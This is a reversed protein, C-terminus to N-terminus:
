ARHLHKSLQLRYNDIELLAGWTLFPIALRPFAISPSTLHKILSHAKAELLDPLPEIASRTPEEPGFESAVLLVNLDETLRDPDLSYTRDRNCYDGKEKLRHHTTYGWIRVFGEDPDIQAALYYDAVWNPIDVWEGPVRLESLDIAESPVLVLRKDGLSIATGDLFEWCSLVLQAQPYEEQLWPLFTKLCLQNLYARWRSNPSSFGQNQEWAKNQITPSIALWLHTPNILTNSTSM